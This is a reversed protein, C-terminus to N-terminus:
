WNHMRFFDNAFSYLNIKKDYGATALLEGNPSFVAAFVTKSHDELTKVCAWSGAGGKVWLKVSGGEDGAAITSEPSVAVSHVYQGDYGILSQM